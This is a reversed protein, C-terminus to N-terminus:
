LDAVSCEEVQGDIIQKGFDHCHAVADAKKEYTNGAHFNRERRENGTDRCIYLNISWEGSDTLKYPAARIEYGKYRISNM